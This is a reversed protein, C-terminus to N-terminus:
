VDDQVQNLIEEIHLLVKSVLLSESDLESHRRQTTYKIYDLLHMDNM